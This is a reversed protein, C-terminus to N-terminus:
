DSFGTASTALSGAGAMCSGAIPITYIPEQASTARQNVDHPHTGLGKALSAVLLEHVEDVLQQHVGALYYVM